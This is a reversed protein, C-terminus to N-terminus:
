RRPGTLERAGSLTVVTEVHATQPFLEVPEVSEVRYGGDVLGRLDRALTAPDCSVLVLRKVTLRLLRHVVAAGLGSRPPNAVVHTPAVCDPPMAGLLRAVDSHRFVIGSAGLRRAAARGCALAARDADCVWVNSAGRRLLTLGYLGVGGYLDLVSAGRVPGCREAVLEILQELGPGNVQLFADAPLRLRLGAVREEIWDRGALSEVRAGGRQRPRQRVRVVGAISRHQAVLREALSEAHPFPLATERLQVLMQGTSWARRIVLRWGSANADIAAGLERDALWACATALIANAEDHQVHCHGIRVEGREGHGRKLGVRAIGLEDRYVSFEVKNRYGLEPSVVRPPSPEPQEFRGIRQLADGVLRRKWDRQLPEELAMWPCGGCVGHHACVPERRQPSPRVLRRVRAEGFTSRLRTPEIEVRDGPLGGAVFWVRGDARAVGRGGAALATVEVETTSPGAPPVGVDQPRSM